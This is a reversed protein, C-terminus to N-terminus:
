PGAGGHTCVQHDHVDSASCGPCFEVVDLVVLLRAVQFLRLEMALGKVALTQDITHPVGHRRSHGELSGRSTTDVEAVDLAIHLLQEVALGKFPVILIKRGSRGARHHELSRM